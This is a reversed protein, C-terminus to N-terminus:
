SDGLTQLYLALDAHRHLQRQLGRASHLITLASLQSHVFQLRGNM